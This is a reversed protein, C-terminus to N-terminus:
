ASPNDQLTLSFFLAGPIPNQTYPDTERFGLARYLTIAEVMTRITDLKMLLYGNERAEAILSQALIRGIGLGRFAPRVYMRKMECAGGGLPRFAGCGAPKGDQVALLLSGRPSAYAGPLGKLETEFGQFCLDFSLSAAYERFLERTESLYPEATVHILELM